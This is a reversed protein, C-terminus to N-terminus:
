QTPPLAVTAGGLEASVPTGTARRWSVTFTNSMRASFCNRKPLLARNPTNMSTNLMMFAFVATLMEQTDPAVNSRAVVTSFGRM